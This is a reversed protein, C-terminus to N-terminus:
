IPMRLIKNYAEVMKDRITVVTNLTTEASKVATTVDVISAQGAVMKMGMTEAHDLQDHAEELSGRVMSAFDTGAPAHAGGPNAFQAARGYASAASLPDVAM